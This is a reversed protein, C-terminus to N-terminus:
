GSSDLACILDSAIDAPDELGVSLRCFGESIGASELEEPSLQTHTISAAHVLLSHHGGLSAAPTVLRLAEQFRAARERGGAVELGLVGGGMGGLLKEALNKGPDGELAPYHVAAVGAHSKLSRAVALASSCSRDVRLGVTALGRVALWANFPSLTAGFDRGLEQLKRVLAGDACVIGGLLDHHGGLFKTASHVVASAGHELPRCLVPSAFTNDVVLPVGAEAALAGLKDLDAVQVRPNGITECFLLRAGELAQAIGAFDSVDFIRASIGYRPLRSEMLEHTGGYVQRAAVFHDGSSCMSLFIAAIAAMGSSFAEAEAAGELDAVAAEFADVTPNAWRSYTYGSGVKEASARAFAGADSFSFTTSPDLRLALPEGPQPPPSPPHVARTQLRRDPEPSLSTGGPM